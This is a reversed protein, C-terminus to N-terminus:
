KGAMKDIITAIDAVDVSGDGNVDTAKLMMKMTAPKSRAYGPATAYVTLTYIRDKNEIVVEEGPLEESTSVNTTFEAGPTECEYLLRNGNAIITPTACKPTGSPESSDMIEQIEEDTLGVINRFSKWPEQAKYDNISAKPVYLTAYEINCDQFIYSSIYGDVLECDWREMPVDKSLCYVESIKMCSTFANNGLYKIGTGIKVSILGDCRYFAYSGIWNVDNPITISTLSICHYFAHTEISKLGGEITVSTLGSCDGFAENGIRTVSNPITVSTLSSCGAFSGYGLSTVSNPIITNKCGTILENTKTNIIANCKDRSDYVTNGARVTISKLGSCNTFPNGVIYTVSYPITISTLGSCGYFADGGIHTVSNPISISTLGTCHSFAQGGIATVNYTEGNYNVTPPIIVNGSYANQNDKYSNGSSYYTVTATKSNKDFNCYIGGMQANYAGVVMPLLMMALLIIQKKM